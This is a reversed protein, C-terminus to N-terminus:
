SRAAPEARLTYVGSAHRQVRRRRVHEQRADKEAEFLGALLIGFTHVVRDRKM